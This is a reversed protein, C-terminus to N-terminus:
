IRITRSRDRECVLNDMGEYRKVVAFYRGNAAMVHVVYRGESNTQDKGQLSRGDATKKFIKVTRNARCEANESRVRGTFDETEANYNISVRSEVGARAGPLALLSIVAALAVVLGVKSQKM